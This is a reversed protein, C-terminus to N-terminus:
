SATLERQLEEVLDRVLPTLEFVALTESHPEEMSSKILKKSKMDLLWKIIEDRSLGTKEGIKDLGIASGGIAALITRSAPDAFYKVRVLNETQSAAKELKEPSDM